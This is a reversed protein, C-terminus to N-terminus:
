EARIYAFWNFNREIFQVAVGRLRESNNNRRVLRADINGSPPDSLTSAM